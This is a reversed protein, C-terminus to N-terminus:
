SLSGKQITSLKRYEKIVGKIMEGKIKTNKDGTRLRQKEKHWGLTARQSAESILYWLSDGNTKM